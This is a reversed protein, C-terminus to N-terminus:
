ISEKRSRFGIPQRSSSKQETQEEITQNFGIREKEKQTFQNEKIFNELSYIGMCIEYIIRNIESQTREKEPLHKAVINQLTRETLNARLITTESRPFGIKTLERIRPRSKPRVENQFGIRNTTRTDEKLSSDDNVTIDSELSQNERGDEDEHIEINSIAIRLFEAIENPDKESIIGDLIAYASPVKNNEDSFVLEKLTTESLQITIRPDNQELGM